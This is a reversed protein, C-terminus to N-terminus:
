MAKSKVTGRFLVTKINLVYGTRSKLDTNYGAWDSDVFCELTTRANSKEGLKLKWDATGKMYRFVRKVENWDAARPEKTRQALISVAALIDPCTNTALYLLSGIGKLYLKNSEMRPVREKIKFYEPDLPIKSTKAGQLGFEVLKDIIFHKQNLHFIGDGDRDFKIGLYHDINGLYKM